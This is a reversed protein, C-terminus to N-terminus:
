VFYVSILELIININHLTINYEDFKDYNKM